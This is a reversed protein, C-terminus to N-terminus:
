EIARGLGASCGKAISLVHGESVVLLEVYEREVV